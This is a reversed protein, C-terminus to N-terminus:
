AAADEFTKAIRKGAGTPDKKPKDLTAQCTVYAKDPHTPNNPHTRVLLGDQWNAPDHLWKPAPKQLIICGGLLPPSRLNAPAHRWPLGTKRLTM